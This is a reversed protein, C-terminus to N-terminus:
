GNLEASPRHRLTGRPRRHLSTRQSPPRPRLAERVPPGRPQDEGRLTTVLRGEEHLCAGRGRAARLGVPSRPSDLALYPESLAERRWGAVEFARLFAGNRDFVAVRGNGNDAVYVNGDMGAVLGQPDALKGPGAAAGVRGGQARLRRFARRAREGHGRRLGHWGRGRRDRASRLLRRGMRAALRGQRRLGPRPREVHRGRLALGSAGSRSRRVPRQVARARQRSGRVRPPVLRGRGFLQVRQNGFDAVWVRGQRTRHREAPSACAARRSPPRASAGADKRPALPCSRWACAAGGRRRAFLRGEGRLPRDGSEPLRADPSGDVVEFRALNGGAYTRRELNGVAVLAVHYRLLIRKVVAEDASTYAATVDAKRRDTEAQSHGRQQTHYEWGQVTPLGTNMSLRTFEQYPPGQAELLVPLGRVNANIWEIAGRDSPNQRALYATGDLTFRPWGGRDLRLFGAFATVTTFLAALGGLATAVRWARSRSLRLTEWAIAGALSFLLWTEFHFKFITNMRDWVFVLECGTLVAFGFAVLALAPRLREQTARRLAAGLAVLFALGTFLRVSPAQALRLPHLSFSVLSLPLAVAALILFARAARGPPNVGTKWAAFAFPVLLALFFAWVNFFDWPQAWPGVERGWNRPPPSFQAWFPRVLLAASLAVGAAPLLVGGALTRASAALGAPRTGLWLVGPLFLLLCAYVPTSWGSTIQLAAFSLGALALLAASQRLGPFARKERTM